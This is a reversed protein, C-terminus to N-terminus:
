HWSGNEWPNGRQELRAFDNGSNKIANIRSVVFHMLAIIIGDM